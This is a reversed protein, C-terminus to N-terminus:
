KFPFKVRSFTKSLLILETKNENKSFKGSLITELRNKRKECDIRENVKIELQQNKIRMQDVIEKIESQEQSTLQSEMNSGLEEEMGVKDSQLSEMQNNLNNM